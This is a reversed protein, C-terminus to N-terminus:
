PQLRSHHSEYVARVADPDPPGAAPLVAGVARLFDLGESPPSSLGLIRAPTDTPNSFTHRTGRLITIFSGAPAEMMEEQGILVLVTGEVVYIAEDFADHIHPIPGHFRVPVDIQVAAWPGTGDSGALIHM